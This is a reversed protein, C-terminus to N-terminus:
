QDIATHELPGLLPPLTVPLGHRDRRGTDICHDQGVGVEIVAAPNWPQHPFAEATRDIGRRGRNVQASDDKRVGPMQLFFVGIKVVPVLLRFVMRRQRQVCEGLCLGAQLIELRHLKFFGPLERRFNRKAEYSGRVDQSRRHHFKREIRITM